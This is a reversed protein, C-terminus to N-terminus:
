ALVSDPLEGDLLYSEAWSGGVCRTRAVWVDDLRVKDFAGGTFTVTTLASEAIRSGGAQAEDFTRGDFHLESHDGDHALDGTFPQLYPAYPLSELDRVVPM